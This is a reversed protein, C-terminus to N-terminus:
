GSPKRGAQSGSFYLARTTVRRVGRMLSLCIATEGWRTDHRDVGCAGPPAFIPLRYGSRDPWRRPAMCLECSNKRITRRVLAKLLRRSLPLVARIDTHSHSLNPAKLRPADIAILKTMAIRTIM